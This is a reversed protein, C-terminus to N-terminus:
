YFSRSIGVSLTYYILEIDTPTEGIDIDQSLSRYRVAPKLLWRNGLDFAVGADAQWGLGHDSDAITDGDSNEVEVHHYIGGARIYFNVASFGIPHLFELGFTYGTEEFDMDPSGDSTFQHWGWGGFLSTHPMFRYALIGDIGYGTNLATNGLDRAAFDVGTRVEWSLRNQAYTLQAATIIATGLLM